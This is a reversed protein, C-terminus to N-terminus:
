EDEETQAGTNGEVTDGAMNGLAAGAVGGVVTGVPGLISGAAAGAAGGGVTGVAEGTDVDTSNTMNGNKDRDKNNAM